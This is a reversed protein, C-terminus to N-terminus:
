QHRKYRCFLAVSGFGIAFLILTSPEPVPSPIEEGYINWEIDFGFETHYGLNEGTADSVLKYYDNEIRDIQLAISSIDYNSFDTQGSLLSTEPSFDSKTTGFGGAINGNIDITHSQLYINNQTENTLLDVIGTFNQDNDNDFIKAIGTENHFVLTALQYEFFGFPNTPNNQDLSFSFLLPVENTLEMHFPVTPWPTSNSGASHISFSYNGLLLPASYATTCFTLITFFLISIKKSTANM